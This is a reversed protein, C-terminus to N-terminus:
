TGALRMLSFGLFHVLMDEQHFDPVQTCMVTLLVQLFLPRFCVIVNFFSAFDSNGVRPVGYTFTTVHM